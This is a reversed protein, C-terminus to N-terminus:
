PKVFIMRGASTQLVSTVIVNITKGIYRRGGQDVIMTGDELYAISQDDGKGQKVPTVRMVEGPLAVPKLTNALENINLIGIGQVGAVKNLNYDNTVVVGELIEALKLLKLDVEPIKAIEKNATTDYIEVGHEDQIAKLIDLGRRGRNRKLEDASDSIHRLEVLVFDPIVIEGELFGTNLIEQVRGDIIVSTDFVKPLASGRSKNKRKFIDASFLGSLKPWLVVGLRRGSLWCYYGIGIYLLISLILNLYMKDLARISMLINSIISAIFIGFVLGIIGPVLEEVPVKQILENVALKTHNLDSRDEFASYIVLFIIGFLFIAAGNIIWMAVPDMEAFEAAFRNMLSQSVGLGLLMGCLVFIVRFAKKFM